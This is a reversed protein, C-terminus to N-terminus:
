HDEPEDGAPKDRGFIGPKGDAIWKETDSQYVYPSDDRDERAARREEDAQYEWRIDIAEEDTLLLTFHKLRLCYRESDDAVIIPSMKMLKGIVIDGVYVELFPGGKYVRVGDRDVLLKRESSFGM